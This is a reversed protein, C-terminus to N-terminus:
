YRVTNNLTKGVRIRVIFALVLNPFQHRLRFLVRPDFRPRRFAKSSLSASLIRTAAIM